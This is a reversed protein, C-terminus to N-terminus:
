KWEGSEFDIKFITGTDYGIAYIDGVRNQGFAVIRDPCQGIERIKDLKGERHTIGWLRKTEYDGCIYIGYFSSDPKARYVYGATISAGHKRRFSVVPHVYSAGEKQHQTSFLEFGEFVNWGHNEGSRVLAIEEFRNQGVDGVWLEGNAPDWSFRWPQRLGYAFIERLVSPDKHDTFPNDGPISYTRDGEQRDVDIRLLTGGFATLNQANGSPDEQPGTDGVGIYLYGDPGFAIGGGHHVQTPVNFHLITKSPEGSDARLSEDARREGITMGRQTGQMTEHMFFYRRNEAFNPHLAFGLLGEDATVFVEDLIQVFPSQVEVGDKKELMSIQARSKEVILFTDKLTPHEGFWVPKEFDLGGGFVPELTVPRELKDIEMPTGRKYAIDVDPQKLSQLYSILDTFEQISLSAHLGPPMLSAPSPEEKSIDARAIRHRTTADALVIEQDTAEKIVGVIQEGSNREIITASFGMMIRATPDLISQALDARSYKDGAAYLDPGAKSNSGDVSHCQACLTRKENFIARGKELDGDHRVAHDRYQKETPPKGFSSTAAVAILFIVPSRWMRGILVGGSRSLCSGPPRALPRVRM